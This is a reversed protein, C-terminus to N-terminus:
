AQAILEQINKVQIYTIGSPRKAAPKASASLIVRKMGLQECEKVRRDTQRVPRIEGLLGVEGFVVLDRGLSKDKYAAAIALAVALDAAPEAAELGGVVNVHIDYQSLNLGARRGLVAVLMHLRNIDFGNTKRVPYGFVTKCVLAQIEVLLPRTGEMLCTIISGPMNEGREALLMASPNEVATLGIGTMEFIGVEDTSGFRNKNARLIRLERYRDGEFSLVTDVLHELTKPGAVSGDKTVHGILLIAVTNNKAYELFRGASGRIQSVSGAEGAADEAHVTQISDIIALTPKEAALTALISELTTAPAFRVQQLPSTLRAARMGIQQLSEEGSLYLTNPVTGAIQLALTSKGIGPEGGLLILSGPVIGGGLVRDIEPNNITFRNTTLQPIEGLRKTETPKQSSSIVKSKPSQVKSEDITGWKGCEPCRGVWKTYQAECFSCAFM